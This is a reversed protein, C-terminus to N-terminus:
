RTTCAPCAPTARGALNPPCGRRPVSHAPAAQRTLRLHVQRTSDERGTSHYRPAVPTPALPYPGTGTGPRRGRHPQGRRAQGLHPVDPQGDFAQRLRALHRVPIRRVSPQGARHAAIIRRLLARMPLGEDVFVRVYGQRGPPLHELLFLLSGHVPEADILYDDLILVVEDDGSQAALENILATVLGEFVSPPLLGFLPLVREAVGPRALGVAAVVHRWFRVPDNDGADLSLWAVLRGSRRVWGACGITGAAAQV